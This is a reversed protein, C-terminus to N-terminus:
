EASDYVITHVRLADLDVALRAHAASTLELHLREFTYTHGHREDYREPDVSGDYRRSARELMRTATDRLRAQGQPLGLEGLIDPATVGPREELRHFLALLFVRWANRRLRARDAFVRAIARALPIGFLSLSFALPLVGFLVFDAPGTVLPGIYPIPAQRLLLVAVFSLILNFANLGIIWGYHGSPLGIIAPSTELRDWVYTYDRLGGAHEAPEAPEAPESPQGARAPQFVFRSEAGHEFRGGHRRAIATLREHARGADVGLQRAAEAVTVQGREALWQLLEPSESATTALSEFTYLIAGSDTVEIDGEYRAALDLTLADAEELPLGTLSATDAATIRGAHDRIYALLNRERAAPDDAPTPTGFVFAHVSRLRSPARAVRERELALGLVAPEPTLGLRKRVAALREARRQRSRARRAEWRTRREAHHQRHLARRGPDHVAPPSRGFCTFDPVACDCCDCGNCDCGEADCGGCDCDCGDGGSAAVAIAIAALVLLVIVYFAFYGILVACLGAFYLAQLGRYLARGLRRWAGHDRPRRARDLTYVLTGNRDVAVHGQHQSLAPLLQQRITDAPLATAAMLDGLTASGGLKRLAEVLTRQTDASM